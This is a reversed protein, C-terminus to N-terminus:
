DGTLGSCNLISIRSANTLAVGGQGPTFDCDAITVDSIQNTPAYGEIFIAQKALQGFQSDRIDINRM